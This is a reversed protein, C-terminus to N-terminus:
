VSYITPLTLHTYSVAMCDKINDVIVGAPNISINKSGFVVKFKSGESIFGNSPYEFYLKAKECSSIDAKMAFSFAMVILLLLKM